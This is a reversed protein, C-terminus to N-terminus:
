QIHLSLFPQRQPQRNRHSVPQIRFLQIVDLPIQRTWHFLFDYRRGHSTHPPLDNGVIRHTINKRRLPLFHPLPSCPQDRLLQRRIPNHHFLHHQPIDLQRRFIRLPQLRQQQLLLLIVAHAHLRLQFTFLHPNGFQLGLGRFHLLDLLGFAFGLHM